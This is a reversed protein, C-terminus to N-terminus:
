SKVPEVIVKGNEDTWETEYMHKDQREGIVLWSVAASSSTNQSEITLLNGDVLGRVADWDSENSTFCQVERCLSVFTGETIGAASDINITAKGNVLTAKGRYILDAQPGEIFSHVLHHTDPKLPHDIKFSGSGKSLSGVVTCSTRNIRFSETQASSGGGNSIMFQIGSSAAISSTSVRIRHQENTDASYPAIAFWDIYTGDVGSGTGIWGYSNGQALIKSSNITSTAGVLLAGGSTIRALEGGGSGQWIQVPASGDQRVLIAADTSDNDYVLLRPDTGSTSGLQFSGGSTIRAREVNSTLFCLPYAGTTTIEAREGGSYTSGFYDIELARNASNIDNYLRLSTYSAATTNRIVAAPTASTEVYLRGVGSTNGILFNGSSDIRARETMAGGGSNTRFMIQGSYSAGAYSDLYTDVTPFNYACSLNAAYSDGSGASVVLKGNQVQLNGASTIRARETTSASNATTSFTLASAYNGDTSNEKIAKIVGARSILGGSSNFVYGFSIGGGNGQAYATTDIANINQSGDVSTGIASRVDVRASPSTVGVGLNGSADLTMAQTFTIANGATGSAATTFAYAGSTLALRMAFGTGIYRYNTGDFYANSIFSSSSVSNGIIAASTGVQLAAGVGSWASPTVGLGLNGSSTLTLLNTANNQYVALGKSTPVNIFGGGSGDSGFWVKAADGTTTGNVSFVGNSQITGVVDLKTGPSSTGIGLNGSSDLRM